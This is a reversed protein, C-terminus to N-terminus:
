MVLDGQSGGAILLLRSGREVGGQPWGRKNRGRHKRKLKLLIEKPESKETGPETQGKM